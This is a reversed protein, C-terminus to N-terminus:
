EGKEETEAVDAGDVSEVPVNVTESEVATVLDGVHVLFAARSPSDLMRLRAVILEDLVREAVTEGEASLRETTETFVGGAREFVDSMSRAFDGSTADTRVEAGKTSFDELMERSKEAATAAMGFGVNIMGNVLEEFKTAMM